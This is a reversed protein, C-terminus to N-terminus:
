KLAIMRLSELALTLISPAFTPLCGYCGVTYFLGSLTKSSPAYFMRALWFLPACTNEILKIKLIAAFILLAVIKYVKYKITFNGNLHISM